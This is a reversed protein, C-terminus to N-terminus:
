RGWTRVPGCDMHVFDSSTYKGVGG